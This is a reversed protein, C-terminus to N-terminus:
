HKNKAAMKRENAYATNCIQTAKAVAPAVVKNNYCDMIEKSPVQGSTLQPCYCDGVGSASGMKCNSDTTELMKGYYYWPFPFLQDNGGGGLGIWESGGGWQDGEVSTQSSSTCYPDGPACTVGGSHCFPGIYNPQTGGLGGGSHDAPVYDPNVYGDTFNGFCATQYSNNNTLHTRVNDVSCCMNTDGDTCGSPTATPSTVQWVGSSGPITCGAGTCSSEGSAIVMAAPCDEPAGGGNKWDLALQNWSINQNVPIDSCAAIQASSAGPLSSTATSKQIYQSPYPASTFSNINKCLNLCKQACPTNYVSKSYFVYIVLLVIIIILAILLPSM